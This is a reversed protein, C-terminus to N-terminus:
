SPFPGPPMPDQILASNLRSSRHWTTLPRAPPAPSSLNPDVPTADKESQTCSPVCCTFVISPNSPMSSHTVSSTLPPSISSGVIGRWTASPTHELKLEQQRSTNQMLCTMWSVIEDPLPSLAFSPHVQFNRLILASLSNADIHFDRSLSDAVINQAGAIHQSFLIAEHDLMTSAFNRALDVHLSQRTEDFSSKHLWGLASTSDLISLICPYPATSSALYRKVTIISALYELLNLSLRGRLDLPIEWRWARGDSDYGGMGTLCADSWCTTDPQRYTLLNISIGKAAVSLFHSWLQLDQIHSNSFQKSRRSWPTDKLRRLRHLFHRAFPIIQGLHNLRGILTDLEKYNACGQTQLRHIETTWALFKTPPLASVSPKPTSSGVLSSKPNWWSDKVLYNVCPSYIPKYRNNRLMKPDFSATYQM